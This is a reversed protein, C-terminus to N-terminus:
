SGVVTLCEVTPHHPLAETSPGFTSDMFNITSNIAHEHHLLRADKTPVLTMNYAGSGQLRERENMGKEVHRRLEIPFTTPSTARRVARNPLDSAIASPASAVFLKCSYHAAIHHDIKLIPRPPQATLHARRTGARLHIAAFILREWQSSLVVLVASYTATAVFITDRSVGTSLGLGGAFVAIFAIAIGLRANPDSTFNLALIPGVILMTAILISIGKLVRVLSREHFSQIKGPERSGLVTSPFPWHSWLTRSVVDQDAPPKLAVLDEAVVLKTQEGSAVDKLACRHAELMRKDPSELKMVDRSLMLSKHYKRLKVELDGAIEIRKREEEGTRDQSGKANRVLVEWSRMSSHLDPDPSSAAKADLADLEDQLVLLDGQLNLLNRATLRDFRRFVYTEKDPDQAISRAVTAYGNSEM